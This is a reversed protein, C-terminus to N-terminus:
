NQLVSLNVAKYVLAGPLLKQAGM